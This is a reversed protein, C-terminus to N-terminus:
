ELKKLILNVIEEPTKNASDVVLDYISTDNLNIDYYKKYRASESREREVIEKKRKELDGNERNVIRNVRTKM